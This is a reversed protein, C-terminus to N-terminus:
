PEVLHVSSLPAWSNPCLLQRGLCKFGANTQLGGGESYRSPDGRNGLLALSPLLLASGPNIILMMVQSFNFHLGMDPQISFLYM